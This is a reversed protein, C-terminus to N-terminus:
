RRGTPRWRSLPHYHPRFRGAGPRHRQHFHRHIRHAGQKCVGDKPLAAADGGVGRELGAVEAQGGPARCLIKAGADGQQQAYKRGLCIGLGDPGALAVARGPLTGQEGGKEDGGDADCHIRGPCFLAACMPFFVVAARLGM